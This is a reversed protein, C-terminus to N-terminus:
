LQMEKLSSVHKEGRIPNKKETKSKLQHPEEFSTKHGQLLTQVMTTQNYRTVDKENVESDNPKHSV